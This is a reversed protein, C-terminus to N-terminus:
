CLICCHIQLPLRTRVQAACWPYFVLSQANLRTTCCCYTVSDSVYSACISYAPPSNQINNYLRCCWMLSPPSQTFVSLCVCPGYWCRFCVWASDSMQLHSCSCWIFLSWCEISMLFCICHLQLWNKYMTLFRNRHFNTLIPHVLVLVLSEKMCLQLKLVDVVFRQM